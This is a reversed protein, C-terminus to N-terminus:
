IKMKKKKPNITDERERKKTEKWSDLLCLPVKISITHFINLVILSSGFCVFTSFFLCVLFRLIQIKKVKVQINEERMIDVVQLHFYKLIFCTKKEFQM